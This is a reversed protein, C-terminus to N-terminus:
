CLKKKNKISYSVEIYDKVMQLSVILIFGIPIYYLNGIINYYSM